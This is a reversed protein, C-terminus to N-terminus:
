EDGWHNFDVQAEQFLYLAEWCKMYASSRDPDNDGVSNKFNAYDITAAEGAAYSAWQEASLTVRYRYDSNRSVVIDADDMHLKKLLRELDEIVRARVNLEGPSCFDDHVASYFGDRTFLWM